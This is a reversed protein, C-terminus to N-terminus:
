IYIDKHTDSLAVSLTLINETHSGSFRYLTHKLSHKDTPMIKGANTHTSKRERIRWNGRGTKEGKMMLGWYLQIDCFGRM